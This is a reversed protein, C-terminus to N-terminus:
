FMVMLQEVPIVFTIVQIFLFCDSQCNCCRVRENVDEVSLNKYNNLIELYKKIQDETYCM